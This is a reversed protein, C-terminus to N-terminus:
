KKNHRQEAFEGNKTNISQLRKRATWKMNSMGKGKSCANRHTQM